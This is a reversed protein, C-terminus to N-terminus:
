TQEIKPCSVMGRFCAKDSVSHLTLSYAEDMSYMGNSVVSSQRIPSSNEMKLLYVDEVLSSLPISIEQRVDAVNCVLLTENDMVIKTAVVDCDEWSSKGVFSSCSPLLLGLFYIDKEYTNLKLLLIDFEVQM